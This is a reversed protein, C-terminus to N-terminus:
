LEQARGPLLPVFRVPILTERIMTDASKRLRVIHQPGGHPGLPLIMIGGEALQAALAEPVEQAAATILIRDYPAREACGEIGDGAIVTVNGLGLESLRERAADALTRYREISVVEGALHSLVATQYGSGTGIELVKHSRALQLQESMFAVVYPQSITQGCGIPLAQDAYAYARDAPAVFRDRPVDDLAKLVPQSSIGYRRLTLMFEMRVAGPELIENLAQGSAQGIGGDYRVTARPAFTPETRLRPEAGTVPDAAPALIQKITAILSM